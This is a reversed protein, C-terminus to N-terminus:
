IILTSLIALREGTPPPSIDIPAHAVDRNIAPLAPANAPLTAVALVPQPTLSTASLTASPSQYCAITTCCDPSDTTMALSSSSEHGCCPMRACFGIIATAPALGAILLVVALAVSKRNMTQPNLRNAASFSEM